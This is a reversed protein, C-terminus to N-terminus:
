KRNANRRRTNRKRTRRGGKQSMMIKNDLTLIEGSLKNIANLHRTMQSTRNCHLECHRVTALLEAVYKNFKSNRVASVAINHQPANPIIVGTPAKPWPVVEGTPAVPYENSNDFLYRLKESSDDYFGAMYLMYLSILGNM